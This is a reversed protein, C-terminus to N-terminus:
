VRLKMIVEDLRFYLFLCVCCCCFVAVVFSVSVFLSVFYFDFLFRRKLNIFKNGGWGNGIWGLLLQTPNKDAVCTEHVKRTCRSM